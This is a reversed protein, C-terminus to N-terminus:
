PELRLHALKETAKAIRKDLTVLDAGVGDDGSV